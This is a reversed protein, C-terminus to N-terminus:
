GIEIKCQSLKMQTWFSNENTERPHTYVPYNDDGPLCDDKNVKTIKM